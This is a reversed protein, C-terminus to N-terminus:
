KLQMCIVAKWSKQPPTQLYQQCRKLYFKTPGDEPYVEQIKELYHTAQVWDRFEYAHLGRRFLDCLWRQAENSNEDRAVLELLNVPQLKGPLLFRGLPRMLFGNLGMVAEESVLLQTGLYKNVGQIRNATNVIDGVARYEYHQRAGINGLVMEGFHLGLRTPLKPHGSESQNFRGVAEVIDLCALCAQKRLSQNASTATWLALMADGIVDSVKGGYREVPEFMSEYYDHMLLALQRPDMAEALTTYKEADTALCAGYVLQSDAHILGVSEVVDRVVQGPKHVGFLAEIRKRERSAELYLLLTIGIAGAPLQIMLPIALPLWVQLEGFLLIALYGYLFVLLGGLLVIGVVQIATSKRPITFCLLCVILGLMFLIIAGNISSVPRIAENELLNALATAVIEVGSLTLGNPLTFVTHYDDRVRDQESATGASFGVLVIKGSLDIQGLGESQYIEESNELLVYYPITRITRPPGYFNLFHVESGSYLNILAHLMRRQSFDLSKDQEVQRRMANALMPSHSFLNRLDLMLDEIDVNQVNTPFQQILAPDVAALLLLFSEYVQLAFLQLVVVPLTPMDGASSKFTWSQNVWSSKPLPFPAYARAAHAITPLIAGVWERVIKAHPEDDVAELLGVEDFNLREVLVVNQAREIAAAFLADQEADKSPTDFVLDFAIVAADAKILSDILRAHLSRPWLNPKLPLDLHTASAQDISIVVVDDPAPKVGRAHFLWYLGFQEEIGAGQPMLHSTAGLLGILVALMIRWRWPKM